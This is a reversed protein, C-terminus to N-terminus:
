AALGHVGRVRANPSPRRRPPSRRPTPSAPRSMRGAARRRHHPDLRAMLEEGAALQREIDASFTEGRQLRQGLSQEGERM